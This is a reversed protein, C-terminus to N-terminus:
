LCGKGTADSSKNCTSSSQPPIKPHTEQNGEGVEKSDNDIESDRSGEKCQDKRHGPKLCKHCVEENPCEKTTHGDQLCRFCTVPLEPYSLSALFTGIKLKYLKKSPIDIYVFRRGDRFGTKKRTVRKRGKMWEMPGKLKFGAKELDRKVAAQPYTFPLGAIILKTSQAEGDGSTQRYPNEGEFNVHKGYLKVGKSLLLARSNENFTLVRWLRNVMTAGDVSGTGSILECAECLDVVDCDEHVEEARIYLPMVEKNPQKQSM